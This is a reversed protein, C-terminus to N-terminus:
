RQFEQPFLTPVLDSVTFDKVNVNGMFVGRIAGLGRDYRGFIFVQGTVPNRLLQHFEFEFDKSKIERVTPKQTNGQYVLLYERKQGHNRYSIYINDDQVLTGLLTFDSSIAATNITRTWIPKLTEDLLVFIIKTIELNRKEPIELLYTKKDPMATINFYCRNPHNMQHHWGFLSEYDDIGPDVIQKEPLTELTLPNLEIANIFGLDNKKAFDQYFLFLRGGPTEFLRYCSYGFRKDGGFMDKDAVKHLNSDLRQISLNFRLRKTLLNPEDGNISNAKTRTKIFGNKVPMIEDYEENLQLTPLPINKINQSFTITQLSLSLAFLLNRTM